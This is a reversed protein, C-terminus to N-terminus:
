TTSCCSASWIARCRCFTIASSGPARARDRFASRCSWLARRSSPRSRLSLWPNPPSRRSRLKPPKALQAARDQFRQRSRRQPNAIAADVDDAAAIGTAGSHRSPKVQSLKLLSAKKCSARMRNLKLSQSSARRRATRNRSLSSRSCHRPIRKHRSTPQNHSAGGAATAHGDECAASTVRKGLQSCDPVNGKQPVPLHYKTIRLM